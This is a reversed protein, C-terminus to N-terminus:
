LIARGFETWRLCRSRALSRATLVSHFSVEFRFFRGDDSNQFTRVHGRKPILDWRPIAGPFLPSADGCELPEIGIKALPSLLVQTSAATTTPATTTKYKKVAARSM